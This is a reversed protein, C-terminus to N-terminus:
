RGKQGRRKRLELGLFATLRDLNEMSLGRKGRMFASFQGKDIGTERCIQVHPHGSASVARRIDEILKGM